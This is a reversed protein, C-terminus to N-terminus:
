HCGRTTVVLYKSRVSINTRRSWSTEDIRGVRTESQEEKKGNKHRGVHVSLFFGKERNM